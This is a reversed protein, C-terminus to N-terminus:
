VAPLPSRLWADPIRAFLCPPSGRDGRAARCVPEPECGDRNASWRAPPIGKRAAGPLLEGMIILILVDLM